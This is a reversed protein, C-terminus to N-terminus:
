GPLFWDASEGGSSWGLAPEERGLVGSWGIHGWNPGIVLPVAGPVSSLRSEQGGAAEVSAVSGGFTM